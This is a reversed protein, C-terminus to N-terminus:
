KLFPSWVKRANSGTELAVRSETTFSSRSPLVTASAATMSAFPSATVLPVSILCPLSVPQSALPWCTFAWSMPTSSSFSTARTFTSAFPSFGIRHATSATDTPWHTTVGPIESIGCATPITLTGM